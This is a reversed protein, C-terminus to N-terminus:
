GLAAWCPLRCTFSLKEVQLLFSDLSSSCLFSFASLVFSNLASSSSCSHCSTRFTPDSEPAAATEPALFFEEFYYHKVDLTKDSGRYCSLSSAKSERSATWLEPVPLYCPCEHRAPHLLRQQLCSSVKNLSTQSGKGATTQNADLQADRGLAEPCLITRSGTLATCSQWPWRYKNWCGFGQDAKFITCHKFEHKSPYDARPYIMWHYCSMVRKHACLLVVLLLNECKQCVM